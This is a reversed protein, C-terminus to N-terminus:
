NSNNSLSARKDLQGSCLPESVLDAPWDLSRSSSLALVARRLRGGARRSQTVAPPVAAPSVTVALPVLVVACAPKSCYSLYHAVLQQKKKPLQNSLVIVYVVLNECELDITGFRLQNRPYLM